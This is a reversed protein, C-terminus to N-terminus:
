PQKMLIKPATAIREDATGYEAYEALTDDDLHM